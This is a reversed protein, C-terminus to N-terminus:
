KRYIECIVNGYSSLSDILHYNQKVWDYDNRGYLYAYMPNVILYQADKWSECLTIHMRDKGRIGYLQAELGWYAPTSITGVTVYEATSNKLIHLYAQRFSMDWYDLEYNSEVSRGALPTYHAYQYPHNVLIGVALLLVYAELAVRIRIMRRREKTRDLLFFIGYAALIVISSYCFYFHRWGNYAPTGSLIAYGLPLLGAVATACIFGVPGWFSAPKRIFQLLLSALGLMALILIGAPVSLLIMVPLYRRPMGTTEKNYLKGAFLIYDNWRFNKASEIQYRIFEVPGTWCAPTLLVYLLVTLLICALVKGWLWKNMKRTFIMACLIFLAVIGWIYIGIVKMNAALSGALSFAFLYRWSLKKWLMWGFYFICLTLALLAMDKNNYHSEAFMRPTFFFLSTGLAAVHFSGLMERLLGFLALVGCFVLLYIYIHWVINGIYPSTRNVYFIWFVPYYAAMGHDREISDAINVINSEDLLRYLSSETGGLCHLYMKVNSYLIEQESKQDLPAGYSFVTLLGLLFISIIFIQSRHKRVAASLLEGSM